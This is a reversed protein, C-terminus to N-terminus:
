DEALECIVGYKQAISLVELAVNKNKLIIEVSEDNIIKEKIKKSEILSLGAKKNLLKIFPIPRMGVQWGNFKIKIM